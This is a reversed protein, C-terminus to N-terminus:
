RVDAAARALAAEPCVAAADPLSPAMQLAGQRLAAFVADAGESESKCLKFSNTSSGSVRLAGPPVNFETAFKIVLTEARGDPLVRERIQEVPAPGYLAEFDSLSFVDYMSSSWTLAVEETMSVAGQQSALHQYALSCDTGREQKLQSLVQRKFPAHAVTTWFQSMTSIGRLCAPRQAADMRLVKQAFLSCRSCRQGAPERERGTVPKTQYRYCCWAVQASTQSCLACVRVACSSSTAVKQAAGGKAE